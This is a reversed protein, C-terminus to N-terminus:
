ERFPRASEPASGADNCKAAVDRDPNLENEGRRDHQPGAPREEHAATCRDAVAREVHEAQDREADADGYGRYGPRSMRARVTEAPAERLIAHDRDIELRGGDDGHEHQESLHQFQAGALLGAAGNARQEIERRFRRTADAGVACSSSTGSSATCIPSRRRTRGPSLTGISPTTSSPLLATSSNSPSRRISAPRFPARRALQDAARDVAGAAEDHAGLSDARSVISARM